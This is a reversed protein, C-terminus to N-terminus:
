GAIVPEEGRSGGVGPDPSGWNATLLWLPCPPHRQLNVEDATIAYTGDCELRAGDAFEGVFQLQGNALSWTYVGAMGFRYVTEEPVSAAVLEDITWELRYVGNLGSPDDAIDADGGDFRISRAVRNHAAIAIDRDNEDFVTQVGVLLDGALAIRALVVLGGDHPTTAELDLGPEGDVEIPRSDVITGAINTVM